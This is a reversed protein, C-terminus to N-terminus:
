FCSCVDLCGGDLQPIQINLDEGNEYVYVDKSDAMNGNQYMYKLTVVYALQNEDYITSNGIQEDVTSFREFVNTKFVAVYMLVAMFVSIICIKKMRNRNM